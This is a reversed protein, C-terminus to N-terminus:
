GVPEALGAIATMALVISVIALAPHTLPVQLRWLRPIITFGALVGMALVIGITARTFSLHGIVFLTLGLVGFGGVWSCICRTLRSFTKPLSRPIWCGFGFASFAVIINAVTAKLIELGM